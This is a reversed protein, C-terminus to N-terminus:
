IVSFPKKQSYLCWIKFFPKKFLLSSLHPVEEANLVRVTSTYQGCPSNVSVETSLHHHDQDPGPVSGGPSWPMGDPSMSLPSVNNPPGGNKSNNKAASPPPSLPGQTTPPVSAPM